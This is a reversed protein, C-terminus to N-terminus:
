FILAQSPSGNEWKTTVKYVSNTYDLCNRHRPNM